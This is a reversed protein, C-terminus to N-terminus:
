ELVNTSDLKWGTKYRKYTIRLYKDEGRGSNEEDLGGIYFNIVTAKPDVGKFIAIARRTVEPFINSKLESLSVMDAGESHDAKLEPIPSYQRGTNTVAVIDLNPILRQRTSNSIQIPWAMYTEHVNSKQKKSFVIPAGWGFDFSAAVSSFSVSTFALIISILTIILMGPKKMYVVEIYIIFAFWIGVRDLVTKIATM